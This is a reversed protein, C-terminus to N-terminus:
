LAVLRPSVAFGKIENERITFNSVVKKIINLSGNIDSNILIGEKSKFLGRKIRKGAYREHRGVQENDIFSCKSTYSEEQLIVSVGQLKAKYKIQNVLLSHPIQVFNQNTKKGLSIESKWNDNKGV